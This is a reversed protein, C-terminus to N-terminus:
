ALPLDPSSTAREYREDWEKWFAAWGQSEYEDEIPVKLQSARYFGRVSSAFDLVATVWESKPVKESGAASRVTIMEGQHLIELNVGNNCGLSMVPFRTGSLWVTFACCPFLFNGEAVSDEVSHNESLTRLLYLASASVTWVGDQPKVFETDNIKFLVRGHACQDNPDDEPGKVWQFGQVLLKIM